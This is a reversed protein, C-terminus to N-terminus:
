PEDGPSRGLFINTSGNVVFYLWVSKSDPFPFLAKPLGQRTKVDSWSECITMSQEQSKIVM